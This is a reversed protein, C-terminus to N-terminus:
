TRKGRFCVIFWLASNERHVVFLMNNKDTGSEKYYKEKNYIDKSNRHINDNETAQSPSCSASMNVVADFEAEYGCTM